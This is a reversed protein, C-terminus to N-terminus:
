SSNPTLDLLPELRLRHQRPTGFLQAASHARKLHLHAEHEWTIGIGGHLQIGEAAVDAYTECCYSKAMAAWERAQETGTAVAWSAAYSLSRASEVAVFLDAARHKVAQFSGIPRGFQERVSVYDVIEGLWRQAAGVVEAALATAAVDLCRSLVPGADGAGGIMRAPTESLRLQALRRTPDMPTSRVLAGTIDQHSAEFLSLGQDTSAVVLVADAKAGDLVFSKTGNLLWTNGERRATTSCRTTSWGHTPESWALAVIAEGSAITPLLRRRSDADEAVLLAEASLMAGGLFRSTVLRRGLEENVINTELLSFGSGGYSEPIALGAAGIEGALRQWLDSDDRPAPQEPSPIHPGGHRDVLTRVTRRLDEQEETFAFHM